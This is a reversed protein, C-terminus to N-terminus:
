RVPRPFGRMRAMDREHAGPQSRGWVSVVRPAQPRPEGSLTGALDFLYRFANGPEVIVLDDPDTEPSLLYEASLIETVFGGFHEISPSAEWAAQYKLTDVSAPGSQITAHVQRAPPPNHAGSM